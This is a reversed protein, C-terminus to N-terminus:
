SSISIDGNAPSDGNKDKWSVKITLKNDDGKKKVGIEFKLFGEPTLTIEADGSNVVIRGNGFGEQLAHLYKQITQCDQISEFAFKDDAAM